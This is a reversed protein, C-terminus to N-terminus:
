FMATILIVRMRVEFCLVMGDVLIFILEIEAQILVCPFCPLNVSLPMKSLITLNYFHDWNELSLFWSLLVPHPMLALFIALAMMVGFLLSATRISIPYSHFVYFSLPPSPPSSLWSSGVNRFIILLNELSFLVFSFLYKKVKQCSLLCATLINM